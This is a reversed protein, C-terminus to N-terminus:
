GWSWASRATATAARRGAGVRTARGPRGGDDDDGQEAGKRAPRRGQGTTMRAASRAGGAGNDDEGGFGRGQGETPKAPAGGRNKKM